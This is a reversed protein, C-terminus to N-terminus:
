DIKQNEFLSRAVLMFNGMEKFRRYTYKIWRRGFPLYLYVKKGSHAMGAAYRNKIGNLMAYEVHVKHKKELAFAEAIINTDHTAIMFRGGSEFLRHMLRRYNKTTEPRSQYAIEANESYAGKVLRIVGGAKIIADVDRSSRRLYSQICIGVGGKEVEDMYLSITRDVFEHEEMDLWVFIGYKRCIGAISKYNKAATQESIDMGIQTPKLSISAIAGAEHLRSALDKYISVTKKVDEAETFGEGLYNVIAGIGARNLEASRKVTDEITPGAIWRGAFLIEAIDSLAM